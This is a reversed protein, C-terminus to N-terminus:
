TSALRIRRRMAAGTLGVGVAMLAWTAPEPAGPPGPPPPAPGLPPKDDGNYSVDVLEYSLDIKDGNSATYNISFMCSYCTTSGDVALNISIYRVDSSTQTSLQSTVFGYGYDEYNPFEPGFLSGIGSFSVNQAGVINITAMSMGHVDDTPGHGTATFAASFPDPTMQSGNISEYDLIATGSFIGDWYAAHATGGLLLTSVAAAAAVWKTM